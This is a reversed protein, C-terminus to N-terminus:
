AATALIVGARNSSLAVIMKGGVINSAHLSGTYTASSSIDYFTDFYEGDDRSYFIPAHDPTSDSNWSGAYLYGTDPDRRMWPFGLNDQVRLVTSIEADDTSRYITNAGADSTLVRAGSLPEVKILTTVSELLEVWSTGTADTSRIVKSSSVGGGDIVAYLRDTNPDYRVDHIHQRLTTDSYTISFSAGDNISKYILADHYGSNLTYVGAFIHGSSNEAIGWFVQQQAGGASLDVVRTWTTPDGAPDVCRWLGREADSLSLGEPSAYLYGNSAVYIARVTGTSFTIMVSWNDGGDTSKRLTGDAVGVYMTGDPAIASGNIVWPLTKTVVGPYTPAVESTRRKVTTPQSAAYVYLKGGYWYWMFPGDVNYVYDAEFGVKSDILVQAPKEAVDAVWIKSASADTPVSGTTGVKINDVFYTATLTGSKYNNGLLFMDSRRLHANNTVNLVLADDIWVQVTGDNANLASAAKWHVVVRHSKGVVIDSLTVYTQTTNNAYYLGYFKNVGSVNIMGLLFLKQSANSDMLGFGQTFDGPSSSIADYSVYFEAWTETRSTWNRQVKPTTGIVVQARRNQVSVGSTTIAWRELTGDDFREWFTDAAAGGGLTQAFDPVAISSAGVSGLPTSMRGFNTGLRGLSFPM